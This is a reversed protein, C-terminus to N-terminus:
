CMERIGFVDVERNGIGAMDMGYGSDVKGKGGLM